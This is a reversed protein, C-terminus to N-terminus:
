ALRHCVQGRLVPCQPCIHILVCLSPFSSQAGPRPPFSRIVVDRRGPAIQLDPVMPVSNGRRRRVYPASVPGRAAPAAPARAGGQYKSGSRSGRSSAAPVSDAPASVCVRPGQGWLGSLSSAVAERVAGSPVGHRHAPLRAPGGWGRVAVGEADRSLFSRRGLGRKRRVQKERRPDQPTQTGTGTSAAGRRGSDEM